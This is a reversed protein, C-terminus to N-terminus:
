AWRGRNGHAAEREQEQEERTDHKRSALTARDTERQRTLSVKTRHISVDWARHGESLSLRNSTPVMLLWPRMAQTGPSYRWILKHWGDMWGGM